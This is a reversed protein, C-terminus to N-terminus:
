RPQLCSARVRAPRATFRKVREHLGQNRPERSDIQGSPRPDPCRTQGIGSAGGRNQPPV